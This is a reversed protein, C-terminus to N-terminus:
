KEMFIIFGLIIMVTVSVGALIKRNMTKKHVHRTVEGYYILYEKSLMGSGMGNMLYSVYDKDWDAKERREFSSEDKILSNKLLEDSLLRVDQESLNNKRIDLMVEAMGKFFDQDTFYNNYVSMNLGGFEKM